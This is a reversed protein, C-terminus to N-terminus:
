FTHKKLEDLSYVTGRWKLGGRSLIKVMSNLVAWFYLIASLPHILVYRLSVVTYKKLHYYIAVLIIISFGCMARAWESGLFMGAYPYVHLFLIFWCFALTPLFKYNISAFQNKEIGKLMAGLNDFLKVSILGKSFGFGQKYGKLVVLKGLSVDDVPQMALREYGGIEQYTSRKILNFAGIGASKSILYFGTVVLVFFSIFGGYFFGKYTIDPTITLHDLKNEMSYKVTKKLSGPSFMVDADTFLLWEGTAEKVGQYVAHNKGLWNPPLDSINVVKLQPYIVKLKDLIVRTRDTSRDNVVIVEFNPYDQDLLQSIAKGISEEENCAPIVVSLSPYIIGKESCSTGSFIPKSKLYSFFISGMLIWTALNIFALVIFLTSM